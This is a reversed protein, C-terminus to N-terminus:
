IRHSVQLLKFNTVVLYKEKVKMFRDQPNDLFYTYESPLPPLPPGALLTSAVVPSPLLDLKLRVYGM